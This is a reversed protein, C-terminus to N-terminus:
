NAIRAPPSWTIFIKCLHDMIIWITCLRTQTPSSKKRQPSRKGIFIGERMKGGLIQYKASRRFMWRPPWFGPVEVSNQRNGLMVRLHQFWIAYGFVLASSTIFWVGVCHLHVGICISTGISLIKKFRCKKLFWHLAYIMEKRCSTSTTLIITPYLYKSKNYTM